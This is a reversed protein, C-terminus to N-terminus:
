VQELLLSGKHHLSVYPVGSHHATIASERHGVRTRMILACAHRVEDAIRWLYESIVVLAWLKFDSVLLGVFGAGGTVLFRSTRM